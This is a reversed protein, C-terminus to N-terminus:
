ATPGLADCLSEIGGDIVELTKADRYHREVHYEVTYGYGGHIQIAEDAAHVAADVATIKALMATERADHGSDALRAAHFALHRAAEARRRSEVLKRAVAQQGLLPKGFAYREAAHRRAHEIAGNASGVALAAGGIWAALRARGIADRAADGRAVVRASVGNLGISAPATARFGLAPVATITADSPDVVGLVPEDGCS